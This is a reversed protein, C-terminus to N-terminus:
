EASEGSAGAATRGSKRRPRVLTWGVLLTSFIGCLIPLIDGIRSFITERLDRGGGGIVWQTWGVAGIPNGRGNADWGVLKVIRGNSDIFGSNGTNVSRAIPVRNEVARLQCAQLHQDLEVWYFWGDNSMNVLFDAKRRGHEGEVSRAMERAPEPMTDEFCIPTGFEYFFTRSTIQTAAADLGTEKVPLRFRTWESGPTNSYDYDVPSFLPMIKNLVPWDRFPIFEGFPVLHRKSYEKERRVGGMGAGGTGSTPVLLMTRNQLLAAQTATKPVYAGYGVLQPVGTEQVLDTVAKYVDAIRRYPDDTADAQKLATRLEDVTKFDDPRKIVLEENIPATIMTEPWVVLDPRPTSTSAERALKLHQILVENRSEPRDKISQPINEQIVAVRIGGGVQTVTENLRFVGYAIWAGTLVGVAAGLRAIFPSFRTGPRRGARNGKSKDKEAGGAAKQWLPLRLADVFFGNIGALIFTLGWVGFIDAAQILAPVPTLCNGLLFWPFGGLVFTSRIYEVATWVLPLAITAPMRFGVVLQRFVLAFAVFYLAIFMALGIFGGVTVPGLWFLNPAWFAVGALYYAGVYRWKLPRRLICVAAPVLAVPALFFCYFPPFLLTLM